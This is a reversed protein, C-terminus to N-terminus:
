LRKAKIATKTLSKQGKLKMKMEKQSFFKKKEQRGSKV